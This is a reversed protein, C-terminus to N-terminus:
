NSLLKVSIKRYEMKRYFLLGTVAVGIRNHIFLKSAPTSCIRSVGKPKTHNVILRLVIGQTTTNIALSM